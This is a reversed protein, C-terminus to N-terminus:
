THRRHAADGPGEPGYRHGVWTVLRQALAALQDAAPSTGSWSVDLHVSIESRDARVVRAGTLGFRPDDSVVAVGRGAAALAQAVAGGSVVLPDDLGLGAESMAADLAMRSSAGPGLVIAPTHVLRDLAVEREGSWPHDRGVYAFVPLPPLALRTRGPYLGQAAVVLDVADHQDTGDLETVMPTPDTPGLTAVFPAVIDALTTPPAAITVREIGGRALVSAAVELSRAEAVVARARPVLALGASTLVLRGRTREFLDLGLERELQRVQRSLAPQTVRVAESARTVTGHEVVALFYQLTRLEM